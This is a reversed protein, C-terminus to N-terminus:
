HRLKLLERLCAHAWQCVIWRSFSFGLALATALNRLYQGPRFLTLMPSRSPSCSSKKRSTRSSNVMM